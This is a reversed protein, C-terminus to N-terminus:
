FKLSQDIVNFGLSKAHDSISTKVECTLDSFEPRRYYKKRFNDFEWAADTASKAATRRRLQATEAEIDYCKSVLDYLQVDHPCKYHPLPVRFAQEDIAQEKWGFVKCAYQYIMVTGMVKGRWSHGAVHPTGIKVKSLLDWDIDPENEWVDLVVNLETKDDLLSSLARNDIVGGRAANILVASDKIRELRDHDLLHHTPFDGGHTLPTHLCIVDANLAEDLSAFTWPPDVAPNSLAVPPDNVIINFGLLELKHKVQRGIRGCGIIAATLKGGLDIKEQRAHWAIASIVYEAVANANCGPAHVFDIGLEDLATKDVHDCGVTASAVLKVASNELLNRDIKVTSRILLLDADELLNPDLDRGSYRHIEGQEAFLEDLWPIAEDAIIKFM